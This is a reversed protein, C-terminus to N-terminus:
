QAVRGQVPFIAVNSEQANYKKMAWRRVDERKGIKTAIFPKNEKMVKVKYAQVENSMEEKFQRPCEEINMVSDTRIIRKSDGVRIEFVASQGLSLEKLEVEAMTFHGNRSYGQNTIEYDVKRTQFIARM